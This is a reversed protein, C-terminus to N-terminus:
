RYNTVRITGRTFLWENRRHCVIHVTEILNIKYIWRDNKTAVRRYFMDPPNSQLPAGLAFELEHVGVIQYRIGYFHEYVRKRM